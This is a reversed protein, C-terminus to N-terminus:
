ATDLEQREELLQEMSGGSREKMTGVKDGVM